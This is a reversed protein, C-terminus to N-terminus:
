LTKLYVLLDKREESSLRRGIVGPLLDGNGEFSHGRNSNGRESVAFRTMGTACTVESSQSLPVSLGVRIPDYEAPGVCFAKPREDQPSLLDELTPVSGNHLYPATAWVGDLPRARYHPKAVYSSTSAVGGPQDSTGDQEFQGRKFVKPNACNPRTGVIAIKDAQRMSQGNEDAYAIIAQDRVKAVVSMLGLVYSKELAADPVMGCANMLESPDIGLQRPISVRRETLVRAQEPDTGMSAVSKQTNNFLWEGEVRIWNAKQNWFSQPDDLPITSDRPPSSHCEVCLERYLSRGAEVEESRISWNNDGKFHSAADEWRPAQLGKFGVPRDFPGTTGALLQEIKHIAMIDVSSSFLPFSPNSANTMNVRASVGIAEGINRIGPNFISADYQAWAFHPVDWIPPFSVPATQAAFNAELASLDITVKGPGAETGDKMIAALLNEHFVQNGIRNLADLRGFGEETHTQHRHRLIDEENKTKSFIKQDCIATLQAEIAQKETTRAQGTLEPRGDLLASVLRQKRWPMYDSYCISLGIIRELNGIDIMAPAGDIRLEKGKYLIRGTHCAACTLGLGEQSMKGTIPDAGAKLVAFGVPLVGYGQPMGIAPNPDCGKNPAIFGLRELYNGDSILGRPAIPDLPSIEPRELNRFWEYPMPFTATGQSVNHFWARDEDSWNQELWACSGTTREALLPPALMGSGFDSVLGLWALGSRAAHPAYSLTLVVALAIGALGLLFVKFASWLSRQRM